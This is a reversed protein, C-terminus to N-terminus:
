RSSPRWGSLAQFLPSVGELRLRIGLHQGVQHALEVLSGPLATLLRRQAVHLAGVAQGEDGGILRADQDRGAISRRQQDPHSLVLPEHSRIRRRQQLVGPRHHIEVVPLHHHQGALAVPDPVQLGGSDALRDALDIPVEGGHLPAAIGVEHQFLDALLGFAQAVREPAVQQFILPGGPDAAEIEGVLLQLPELPDDDGGATGGPM